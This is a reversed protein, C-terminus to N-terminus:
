EIAINESYAATPSEWVGNAFADMVVSGLDVRSKGWDLNRVFLAQVNVISVKIRHSWNMREESKV